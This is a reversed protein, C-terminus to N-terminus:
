VIEDKYVDLIKKIISTTSYGKELEFTKLEGDCSELLSREEELRSADWSGGKVHIHPKIEKLIRLPKDDDFILVYDVSDLSAIIEIREKEPIIPRNPGKNRRVSADSNLLVILIDGLSKAKELLRVHAAHIIDFTGNTTIIKKEQKKLNDVIEKIEQQTKIKQKM